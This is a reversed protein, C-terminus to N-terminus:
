FLRQGRIPENLWILDGFIKWFFSKQVIRFKEFIKEFIRLSQFRIITMYCPVDLEYSSHDRYITWSILRGSNLSGPFPSNNNKHCESQISAICHSYNVTQLSVMFKLRFSFFFWWFYNKESAKLKTCQDFITM